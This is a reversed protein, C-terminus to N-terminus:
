KQVLHVAFGGIEDKLYLNYNGDMKHLVKVSVTQDSKDFSVIEGIKICHISTKISNTLRELVQTLSKDKNIDRLYTM